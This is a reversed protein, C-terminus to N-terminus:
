FQEWVSLRDHRSVTAKRFKAFAGCNHILLHKEKLIGTTAHVQSHLDTRFILFLGVVKQTFNAMPTLAYHRM